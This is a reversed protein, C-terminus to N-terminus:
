LVELHRKGNQKAIYLAKDARDIVGNITDGEKFETLGISCSSPFNKANLLYYLREIATTAGHITTEIFLVVFEDGGYRGIIDTQRFSTKLLNAFEKLVTDGYLHGYSDNLKKLDDLDIIAFCFLHKYRVSRSIEKELYELFSARNYLHTLEDFRAKETIEEYLQINKIASELISKIQGIVDEFTLNNIKQVKIKGLLLFGLFEEGFRLPVSYYEYSEEDDIYKRLLGYLPFVTFSIKSAIKNASLKEVILNDYPIAFVQYSPVPLNTCVLEINDISKKRVYLLFFTIGINNLLFQLREKINLVLDNMNTRNINLSFETIFHMLISINALENRAQTILNIEEKLAKNEELIIQFDQM